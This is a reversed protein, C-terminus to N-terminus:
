RGLSWLWCVLSGLWLTHIWFIIYAYRKKRKRSQSVLVRNEVLIGWVHVEQSVKIWTNNGACPVGLVFLSLGVMNVHMMDEVDLLANLVTKWYKLKCVLETEESNKRRLSLIASSRFLDFIMKCPHTEPVVPNQDNTAKWQTHKWHNWKGVQWQTSKKVITTTTPRLISTNNM